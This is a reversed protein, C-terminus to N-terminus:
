SAVEILNNIFQWVQSKSMLCGIPVRVAVKDGVAEVIASGANDLDVFRARTQVVENPTRVYEAGPQDETIETMAGKMDGFSSADSAIKGGGVERGGGEGAGGMDESGGGGRKRGRGRGKVREVAERGGKREELGVGLPPQGTRSELVEQELDGPSCDMNAGAGGYGDFPVRGRLHVVVCMPNGWVDKYWYDCGTATQV